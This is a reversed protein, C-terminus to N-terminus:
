SARAPDPSCVTTRRGARLFRRRPSRATPHWGVSGGATPTRSAAARRTTWTPPECTTPGTPLSVFAERDSQWHGDGHWEAPVSRVDTPSTPSSGDAPYAAIEKNDRYAYVVGDRVQLDGFFTGLAGKAVVSVQPSPDLPAATAGSPAVGAVTTMTAAALSVALATTWGHRSVVHSM